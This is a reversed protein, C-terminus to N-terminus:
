KIITLSFNSMSKVMASQGFGSIGAYSCDLVHNGEKLSFENMLLEEGNAVATVTDTGKDYILKLRNMGNPLWSHVRGNKLVISQSSRPDNDSPNFLISFIGNPRLALTLGGFNPIGLEANGIGVGLWCGASGQRDMSASPYVDAEVIVRKVAQPLEVRGVFGADNSVELGGDAALLNPTAQWYTASEGVRTGNLPASVSSRNFNDKLTIEEASVSLSVLAVGAIVTTAINKKNMITTNIMFVDQIM